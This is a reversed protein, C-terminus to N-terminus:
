RSLEGCRTDAEGMTLFPLRAGHPRHAANAGFHSMVPDSVRRFANERFARLPRLRERQRNM